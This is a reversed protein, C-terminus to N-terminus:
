IYNLEEMEKKFNEELEFRIQKDLLNKWDNKPGLNFFKKNLGSNKDKISEKFGYKEEYKKLNEFSNTEIARNFKSDAFKLNLKEELYKRIKEFEKVSNSILEEYKIILLNKKLSKWSNYHDKLSSIFTLIESDEFNIKKKEDLNRGIVKDKDMIFKKAEEYNEKTFHNKLSTIVNRPDRVIYITGLTNEYNTFSHNRYNCMVHHTKFFKIKNDLNIKSQSSDWCEALKHIDDIDDILGKFQSRLPYQGIKSISNLDANGDKSFILSNLFSRVWTNGSKPYSAIWIIM